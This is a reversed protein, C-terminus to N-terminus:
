SNKAGLDMKRLNDYSIKLSAVPDGPTQDQEVYFHEVGVQEAARLVAPFDVVGTGVEKFTYGKVDEGYHVPAGFSKDKLHLMKVRDGLKRITAAPDQGATSLWFVDTELKVLKPDWYQLYYDWARHGADGGFEYAHNHYFFGLGMKNAAEAARNMSEAVRKYAEADKQKGSYPVGVWQVGLRKMDAIASDLTVGAPAAMSKDGTILGTELHVSPCKLGYKQLLPAYQVLEGRGAEVEKYGLEAIRKLTGDPDKPLVNRVTYLQVGIPRDFTNKKAAHALSGAAAAAFGFLQRRTSAPM